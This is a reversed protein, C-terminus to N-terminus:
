VLFKVVNEICAKSIKRTQGASTTYTINKLCTGDKKINEILNPLTKFEALIALATVSSISPIQCLMIEGINGTTVNEKKVKKIVSCYDKELHQAEVHEVEVNVNVNPAVITNEEKQDTTELLPLVVPLTEDASPQEVPPLVKNVTPEVYKYYPAKHERLGKAIKYASNCIIYASEDLSWSRWLSFGKFYNISVMASYLMMKDSHGKFANVREMSGEVLYVINHNHHPLGNLRYSQEEYRGDKISASLDRLSKREIIVLDVPNSPDANNCLIIDGIPLPETVIQLDKFCQMTSLLFTCTKILEAERVDIKILM